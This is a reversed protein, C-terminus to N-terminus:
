SFSLGIPQVTEQLLAAGSLSPRSITSLEWRTVERETETGTNSASSPEGMLTRDAEGAQSAM